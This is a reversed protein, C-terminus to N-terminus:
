ICRAWSTILVAIHQAMERGVSWGTDVCSSSLPFLFCGTSVFSSAIVFPVIPPGREALALYSWAIIITLMLIPLDPSASNVLGEQLAYLLGVTASFFVFVDPQCQRNFWWEYPKSVACTAQECSSDDTGSGSTQLGPDRRVALM